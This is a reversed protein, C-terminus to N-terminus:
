AREEEAYEHHSAAPTEIDTMDYLRNRGELFREYAVLAYLAQDTAMPDVMGPEAGGNGAEGAKIHYFGGDESSFSLLSHLVSAGNKVFRSDTDADIGLGSLAVVVQAASESNLSGWSRYGGSSDQAASLRLLGRDIAEKVDQRKDYYPTLGQIAMATIDPDAETPNTGLAWGGGEIERELIFEILRDRTTQVNVGEVLPIDYNLSDFAILAFIPGNIGQKTVYNFDALALRLDYGGVDTVDEGIATLAIILRSHETGKNRDLRGDPKGNAAPMFRQVEKVVNRYYAEYYGDAAKEGSRAIGFVSWEGAISGVTPEPVMEQMFATNAQILQKVSTEKHLSHHARIAVVIAMERTALAKPRFYRDHGQMFDAEAIAIVSARAWTAVEELDIFSVNTQKGPLSLARVLMTAMEERTIPAHPLFRETSNGSVIERSYGANVYPYFWDSEKVDVFPEAHVAETDLGMVSVLLKTFEARTIHSKPDIRGNHGQIISLETAERVHEYAWPSIADADAYAFERPEAHAAQGLLLIFLFSMFFAFCAKWRSRFM